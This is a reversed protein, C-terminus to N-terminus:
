EGVGEYKGRETAYAMQALHVEIRDVAGLMHATVMADLHDAAEIAADGAGGALLEERWLANLICRAAQADSEGRSRSASLVGHILDLVGGFADANM